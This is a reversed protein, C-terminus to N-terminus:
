IVTIAKQITEELVDKIEAIMEEKNESPIKTKVILNIYDILYSADSITIEIKINNM